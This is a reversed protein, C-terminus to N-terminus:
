PTNLGELYKLTFGAINEPLANLPWYKLEIAKHPEMNKPEGEVIEMLFGSCSGQFEKENQYDALHKIIKCKIGLEEQMERLAAQEVTEGPDISGGPNAWVNNFTSTNKRLILLVQDKEPSLVIGGCGIVTM